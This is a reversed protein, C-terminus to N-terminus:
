LGKKDDDVFAVLEVEVERRGVGANTMGSPDVEVAAGFDLGANM